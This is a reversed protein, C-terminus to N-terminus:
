QEKPWAWDYGKFITTSNTSTSEKSKGPENKKM